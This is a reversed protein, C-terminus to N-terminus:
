ASSRDSTILAHQVRGIDWRPDLVLGQYASRTDGVWASQRVWDHDEEPALLLAVDVADFTLHHPVRWEREWEFEYRTDGYAGPNDVFQTISWLPNEPNIRNGPQVRDAMAERVLRQFREAAPSGKPLYTVMQGSEAEVFGKLFGIGYSGRRTLRNLHGIPIESLCVSLQSDSIGELLRVVGTRTRAEITNSRFISQVAVRDTLHVVYESM